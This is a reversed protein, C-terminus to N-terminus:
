SSPPHHLFLLGPLRRGSPVMTPNSDVQVRHYSKLDISMFDLLSGTCSLLYKSLVELATIDGTSELLSTLANYSLEHRRTELPLCCWYM